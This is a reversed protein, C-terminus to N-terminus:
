AIWGKAKGLRALAVVIPQMQEANMVLRDEPVDVTFMGDAHELVRLETDGLDAELWTVPPAATLTAERPM